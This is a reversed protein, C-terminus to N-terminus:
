ERKGLLIKLQQIDSVLKGRGLNQFRKALMERSTCELLVVLNQLEIRRYPNYGASRRV